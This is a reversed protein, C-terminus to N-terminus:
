FSNGPCVFPHKFTRSLHLSCPEWRVLIYKQYSFNLSPSRYHTGSSRISQGLSKPQSSHPSEVRLASYSYFLGVLSRQTWLKSWSTVCHSQRLSSNGEQASVKSFVSPPWMLSRKWDKGQYTVQRTGLFLNMVARRLTVSAMDQRAGMPLPQPYVTPIM